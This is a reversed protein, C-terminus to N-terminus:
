IWVDDNARHEELFEKVQDYNKCVHKADWGDSGLVGDPFTTHQGELATDGCCMINQRLYEFCHPIHGEMQKAITKGAKLSSYVELINYLCHLQHTVSTTYVSGVKEYLAGELPHPLNNYQSPDEVHLYGLGEARFTLSVTRQSLTPLRVHPTNMSPVISLWKEQVAKTFFDSSNEPNFGMDPVFTTIQQTVPPIFGTLDGNGDFQGYSQGHSEQRGQGRNLLLILVLLLLFTNVLGQLVVWSCCRRWRNQRPRPHPPVHSFDEADSHKKHSPLIHRGSLSERDVDTSSDYHADNPEDGGVAAYQPTIPSM